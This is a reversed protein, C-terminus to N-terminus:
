DTEQELERFGAQWSEYSETDDLLEQALRHLEDENHPRLPLKLVRRVALSSMVANTGIGAAPILGRAFKTGVRKILSGSLYNAAHIVLEKTTRLDSADGYGNAEALDLLILMPDPSRQAEEYQRTRASSAVYTEFVQGVVASLIAVTAGLTASLGSLEETLATAAGGVGAAVAHGREHKVPLPYYVGTVILVREAESFRAAIRGLVRFVAEKGFAKRRTLGAVEDYVDAAVSDWFTRLEDRVEPPLRDSRLRKPAAKDFSIREAVAPPLQSLDVRRAQPAAAAKATSPVDSPKTDDTGSM